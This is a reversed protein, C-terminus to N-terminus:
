IATLTKILLLNTRLGDIYILAWPLYSESIIRLGLEQDNGDQETMYFFESANKAVAEYGKTTRLLSILDALSNELKKGLQNDQNYYLAYFAYGRADPRLLLDRPGNKWVELTPGQDVLMARECEDLIQLTEDIKISVTTQIQNGAVPALIQAINTYNYALNYSDHIRERTVNIALLGSFVSNLALLVLVFVTNYINFNKNKSTVKLYVPLFVVYPFPLALSLMTGAFPWHQLKFLMAAFVVFCTLWTVIYLSLSHNSEESRYHDALALPIFLLVLLSIGTTLLIGAGPWHEIKFIVGLFIILTTVLGLIYLKQKM